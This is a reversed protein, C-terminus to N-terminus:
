RGAANISALSRRIWTGIAQTNPVGVEALADRVTDRRYAVFASAYERWSPFPPAVAWKAGLADLCLFSISTCVSEIFWNSCHPDVWFHGAEHALQFTLKAYLRTHLCTVNILFEDPLGSLCARPKGDPSQQVVFPRWGLPPDASIIDACAGVVDRAVTLVDRNLLYNDSGGRLAVTIPETM